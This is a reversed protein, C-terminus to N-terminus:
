VVEKKFAERHEKDAERDMIIADHFAKENERQV